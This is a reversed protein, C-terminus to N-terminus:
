MPIIKRYVIVIGNDNQIVLLKFNIGNYNYNTNFKDIDLNFNENSEKQIYELFNLCDKRNISGFENYYDFNVDGDNTLTGVYLNNGEVIRIEAIDDRELLDMLQDYIVNM